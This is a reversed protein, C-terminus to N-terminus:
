VKATKVKKIKTKKNEIKNAKKLYKRYNKYHRFLNKYIRLLHKFGKDKKYLLPNVFKKKKILKKMKEKYEKPNIYKFAVKKPVVLWLHENDVSTYEIEENTIYDKVLYEAINAGAGTVYYNSRGQRTNLEFVKFKKDREDYKIDLNSFGIFKLDEIFKKIKNELEENKETIIVAHNGIGKPTHEELLVHGLCTLKVKAKKDSYCTLVRMFTDDGPIFEQIILTDDYGAEYIKKITKLSEEWTDIKFVKKQEKFPHEWYSVGDSPKIIFPGTFPEKIEFGLKKNFIFTKPYEIGCNDCLKYFNEKNVFQNMEDLDIYPAIINKPLKDKFESILKIYNDGCGLLFIKYAKNTLAYKKVLKPFINKNDAGINSRYNLIKSGILPGSYYKGYVDCIIGYKEYFARAVSYVNIDAAFLLVKVKDKIDTM